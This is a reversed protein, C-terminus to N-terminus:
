PKYKLRKNNQLIEPLLIPTDRKTCKLIYAYQGKQGKAREKIPFHKDMMDIHIQLQAEDVDRIEEYGNVKSSFLRVPEPFLIGGFFIEWEETRKKSPLFWRGIEELEAHAELPDGRWGEGDKMKKEVFYAISHRDLPLDYSNGFKVTMVKM